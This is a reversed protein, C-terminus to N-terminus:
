GMMKFSVLLSFIYSIFLGELFRKKYINLAMFCANHTFVVLLSDTIDQLLCFKLEPKVLDM